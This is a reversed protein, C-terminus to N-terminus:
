VYGHCGNTLCVFDSHRDWIFYDLPSARWVVVSCCLRVQLVKVQLRVPATSRRPSMRYGYCTYGLRLPARARILVTQRLVQLEFDFLVV